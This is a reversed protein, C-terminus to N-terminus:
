ISRVVILVSCLIGNRLCRLLHGYCAIENTKVGFRRGVSVSIPGNVRTIWTASKIQTANTFRANSSDRLVHGYIYYVYNYM